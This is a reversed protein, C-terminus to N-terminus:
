PTDGSLKIGHRKAARRMARTAGAETKHGPTTSNAAMSWTRCDVEIFWHWRSKKPQSAFVEWVGFGVLATVKVEVKDTSESM